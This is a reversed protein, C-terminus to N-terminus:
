GIFFGQFSIGFVHFFVFEAILITINSTGFPDIYRTEPLEGMTNSTLILMDFRYLRINSVQLLAGFDSISRAYM